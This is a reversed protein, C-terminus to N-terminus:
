LMILAAGVKGDGSASFQEEVGTDIGGFDVKEEIAGPSWVVVKRRGRTKQL